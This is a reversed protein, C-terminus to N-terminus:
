GRARWPTAPRHGGRDRRVKGFHVEDFVVQDPHHIGWFRTVFALLTIVAIAVKYDWENGHDAKFERKVKTVANDLQEVVADSNPTPPGKKDKTGRHRVGTPSSM